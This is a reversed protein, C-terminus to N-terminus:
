INYYQIEIEKNQILKYIENIEDRYKDHRLELLLKNIEKIELKNVDNFFTWRSPINYGSIELLKWIFSYKNNNLLKNYIDIKKIRILITKLIDEINNFVISKIINLDNNEYYLENNDELNYGFM